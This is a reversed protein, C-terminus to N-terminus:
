KREKLCSSPNLNLAYKSFLLVGISFISIVAFYNFGISQAIIRKNVGPILSLSPKNFIMKQFKSNDTFQVM